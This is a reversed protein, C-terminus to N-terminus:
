SEKFQVRRNLALDQATDGAGFETTEGYGVSTLTDTAVGLNILHAMVSDARAQSLALNAADDGRVDTYGQVEFTRDGAAALIEAAQDLTPFSEELIVASSTAFQVPELEFLANLDAVTTDPVTMQDIVETVGTVGEAAAVIPARMPEEAIEGTLTVVRGSVSAGVTTAGASGIATEVDPLLIILEDTVATVGPVAGAAAIAADHAPDDDVIGSAVAVFGDMDVGAEAVGAGELATMVNPAIIGLRNDVRVIGDVAAAAAEADDSDQVTPVLGELVAVDGNVSSDIGFPGTAAAVAPALDPAPEAESEAPEAAVEEAGLIRLRNDVSTIGPVALASAGAEAKIAESAVEGTLRAVAGDARASIDYQSAVVALGDLDVDSAADGTAVAAVDQNSDDGRWTNWGFLLALVGLVAIGILIIQRDDSAGWEPILKGGTAGAAYGKDDDGTQYIGQEYQAQDTAGATVGTAKDAQGNDGESSLRDNDRTM